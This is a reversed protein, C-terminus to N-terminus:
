PPGVISSAINFQTESLGIDPFAHFLAKKM